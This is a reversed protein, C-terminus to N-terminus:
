RPASGDRPVTEGRQRGNRLGDTRQKEPNTWQSALRPEVYCHAAWDITMLLHERAVTGEARVCRWMSDIHKRWNDRVSEVGLNGEILGLGYTLDAIMLRAKRVQGRYKRNIDDKQRMYHDGLRMTPDKELTNADNLMILMM